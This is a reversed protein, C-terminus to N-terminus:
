SVNSIQSFWIIDIGFICWNNCIHHGSSVKAPALRADAHPVIDYKDNCHFELSSFFIFTLDSM